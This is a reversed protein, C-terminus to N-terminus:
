NLLTKVFGILNSIEFPMHFIRIGYNAEIELRANWIHSKDSTLFIRCNMRLASCLHKYDEKNEKGILQKIKDSVTDASDNWTFASEEWLCHAEDWSLECPSTLMPPNKKPRHASDYPFQYCECVAELDKPLSAGSDLYVKIKKMFLKPRDELYPAEDLFHAFSKNLRKVIKELTDLTPLAMGNEYNSISKQKANIAEALQAQTLDNEVRALKIKKGLKKPDM